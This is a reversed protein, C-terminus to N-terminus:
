NMEVFRRRTAARESLASIEQSLSCSGTQTKLHSFLNFPEEENGKVKPSVASLLNNRSLQLLHNSSADGLFLAFRPNLHLQSGTDRSQPHPGQLPPTPTPRPIHQLTQGRPLRLIPQPLVPPLDQRQLSAASGALGEAKHSCLTAPLREPSRQPEPHEWRCGLRAPRPAASAAWFCRGCRPTMEPEACSFCIVHSAKVAGTRLAFRHKDRPAQPFPM